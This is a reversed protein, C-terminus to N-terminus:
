PVRCGDGVEEERQDSRRNFEKQRDLIERRMDLGRGRLQKDLERMQQWRELEQHTELGTSVLQQEIRSLTSLDQDGRRLRDKAEDILQLDEQSLAELRKLMHELQPTYAHHRKIETEDRVIAEQVAQLKRQGEQQDAVSAEIEKRLAYFTVTM